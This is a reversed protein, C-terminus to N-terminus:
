RTGGQRGWGGTSPHFTSAGDSSEWVGLGRLAVYWYDPYAPDQLVDTADGGPTRRSWTAGFDESRFVGGSTAAVVVSNDTADSRLRYVAVPLPLISARTWTAGGDVTKYIGDGVVGRGSDGTGILIQDGASPRVLFAGVSPSGPLDVSIPVWFAFPFAVLVKWLGGHVSGAYTVTLGQAPDYARAISTIRGSYTRGVDSSGYYAQSWSAAAGGPSEARESGTGRGPESPAALARTVSFHYEEPTEKRGIQFRDPDDSERDALAPWRRIPAQRATAAALASAIRRAGERPVFSPHRSVEGAESQLEMMQSYLDSAAVPDVAPPLATSASGGAGLSEGGSLVCCLAFVGVGERDRARVKRFRDIARM